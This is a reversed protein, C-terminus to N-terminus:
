ATELRGLDRDEVNTTQDHGARAGQLRAVLVIQQGVTRDLQLLEDPRGLRQLQTGKGVEELAAQGLLRDPLVAKRVPPHEVAQARRHQHTIASATASARPSDVQLHIVDDGDALSAFRFFRIQLDEAPATVPCGALAKAASRGIGGGFHKQNVAWHAAGSSTRHVMIPLQNAKESLSVVIECAAPSM